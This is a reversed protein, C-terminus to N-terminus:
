AKLDFGTVYWSGAHKEVKLSLSFSGTDGTAGILELSRLTRGDLKVATDPVTVKDGNATVTAVEVKGEPPLKVGPKAWADHLSRASAAARPKACLAEADQGAPLAPASSLCAEKYQERLIQTVWREVAADPTRAGSAPEETSAPAPVSAASTASTASTAPATTAPNASGAVSVPGCAAALLAMPPVLPFLWRAAPRRATM